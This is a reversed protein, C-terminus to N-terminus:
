AAVLQSVTEFRFGQELLEPILRRLAEITNRIDPQPTLGRGDHLCFIAGNSAAGRLRAAVAEAPRKWDEAIASWLVGSLGLEREVRGLGFWLHGFPPRFLVPRRGTADRISDQARGLESRIFATTRFLLSTHSDAHNGIEHGAEAASRAIGPLRRVNAGCQFFTAPVTYDALVDLLQPTSESPGDDFTLAIARTNRPGRWVVVGAIERIM